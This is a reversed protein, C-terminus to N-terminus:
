LLHNTSSTFGAPLDTWANNGGWHQDIGSIGLVKKSLNLRQNEEMKVTAPHTAGTTEVPKSRIQGGYNSSEIGGGEFSYMASPPELNSLFPFQQMQQQVQQLRWQEVLGSSLISGAVGNPSTGSGIQFEVGDGGGAAVGISHHIGGFNLGIDAPNYDGLHHLPPFIPPQPPPPPCTAEVLGIDGALRAFTALSPSAPQQQWNGLYAPISSFVM